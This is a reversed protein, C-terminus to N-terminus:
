PPTDVRNDSKCCHFSVELMLRTKGTGSSQVISCFKAYYVKRGQMHFAANNKTLYEYFADPACGKYPSTLAKRLVSLRAESVPGTYKAYSSFWGRVVLFRGSSSM